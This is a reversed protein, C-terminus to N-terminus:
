IASNYPLAHLQIEPVGHLTVGHARALSHVETCLSKLKGLTGTAPCGQQAGRAISVICPSKKRIKREQEVSEWVGHGLHSDVM